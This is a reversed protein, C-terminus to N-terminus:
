FPASQTSPCHAFNLASRSVRRFGAGILLEAGGEWMSGDSALLRAKRRCRMLPMFPQDPCSFECCTNAINTKMRILWIPCTHSWGGQTGCIAHALVHALELCVPEGSASSIQKSAHWPVSGIVLKREPMRTMNVVFGTMVAVKLVHAKRCTTGAGVSCLATDLLISHYM